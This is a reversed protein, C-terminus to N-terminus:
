IVMREDILKNEEFRQPSFIKTFKNKVGDAILDAMIKGSYPSFMMGHGSYGADVYLGDPWSDSFGMIHSHDPTMEYYGSWGRLIRIGEAGKVLSRLTRTFSLSREVSIDLEGFGRPVEDEVGGIIEGKLTHSFYIRKSITLPKVRFKLDETVFIEKKEPEVPVEIGNRKMFHGTWAGLTVAVVDAPITSGNVEVGVIKGGSVKLRMAEGIIVKVHDKIAEYMGLSLYDHHFSGDQPALYCEEEIKLFDFDNCPLFKGGVGESSWLSHARSIVDKSKEDDLIWLYGTKMCLPNLPLDKCLKLLYPIGEKAFEVNEKTYFHYRYRGANRGSSGYNIRKAEVMSIDNIGKKVLHYALSLGHGGAGLIVVRLKIV